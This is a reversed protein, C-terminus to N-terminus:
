EEQPPPTKTRGDYETGHGFAYKVTGAGATNRVVLFNPLPAAIVWGISVITSDIIEADSNDTDLEDNSAYVSAAGGGAIKITLTIDYTAIGRCDYRDGWQGATLTVSIMM